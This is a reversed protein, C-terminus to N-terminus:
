ELLLIEYDNKDLLFKKLFDNLLYDRIVILLKTSKRLETDHILFTIVPELGKDEMELKGFEDVILWEAKLTADALLSIKAWELVSKDFLYNGIQIFNEESPTIELQRIENTSISKIFRKGDIVPQFIGAVSTLTEAWRM